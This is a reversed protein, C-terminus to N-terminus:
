GLLRGIERFCRRSLPAQGLHFALARGSARSFTAAVLRTVREDAYADAVLRVVTARDDPATRLMVTALLARLDDARRWETSRVPEHETEFDFWHAAGADRDVMVNEAMADGHTFGRRHLAVLAAVALEIARARQAGPVQRDELITALTAGPLRPLVLTGGELEVQTGRLARHLRREREVWERQPLVRVGTDLLRVLVSGMGVLLPAHVRRRKLVLVADGRQEFWADSYRASRLARGLLLCFSFWARVALLRM